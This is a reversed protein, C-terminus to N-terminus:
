ERIKNIQAKESESMTSLPTPMTNMHMITNHLVMEKVIEQELEDDETTAEAGKTPTSFNPPSLPSLSSISSVPSKAGTMMMMM